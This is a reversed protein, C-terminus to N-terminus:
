LVIIIVATEWLTQILYSVSSSTSDRDQISIPFHASKCIFPSFSCTTFFLLNRLQGSRTELSKWVEEWVTEADLSFSWGEERGKWDNVWVRELWAWRLSAFSCMWVSFCLPGWGDLATNGKLFSWANWDLLAVLSVAAKMWEGPNRGQLM